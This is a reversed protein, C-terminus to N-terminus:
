DPVMVSIPGELHFDRFLYSTGDARTCEYQPVAISGCLRRDDDMCLLRQGDLTPKCSRAPACAPQMTSLALVLTCVDM